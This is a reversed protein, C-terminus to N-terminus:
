SEEAGWVRHMRAESGAEHGDSFGAGYSAEARGARRGWRSAAGDARGQAYVLAAEGERLRNAKRIQRRYHETPGEHPDIHGPAVIQLWPEAPEDGVVRLRPVHSGREGRTSMPSVPHRLDRVLWWLFALAAGIVFIAGFAHPYACTLVVASAITALVIRRRRAARRAGPTHARAYRVIM